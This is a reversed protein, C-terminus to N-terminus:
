HVAMGRNRCYDAIWRVRDFGEEGAGQPLEDSIGLVLRPHFLEVIREVCEQLQDISYHDLFMVAPIGDLLIKDGLHEKIEELTVDGQPLPTLAEYGDFPLEQLYKLLPKFDGDVHLHTFIGHRRLFTSRKEYWPILYKEFYEPPVRAVHINEPFNVIRVDRCQVIQEFMGDYANDIAAMVRAMRDPMDVLAFIFEEFSM